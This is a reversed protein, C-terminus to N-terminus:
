AAKSGWTAHILSSLRNCFCPTLFFSRGGTGGLSGSYGLLDCSTNRNISCNRWDWGWTLTLAIAASARYPWTSQITLHETHDLPNSPHLMLRAQGRELSLDAGACDFCEPECDYGFDLDISQLDDPHRAFSLMRRWSGIRAVTPLKRTSTQACAFFRNTM